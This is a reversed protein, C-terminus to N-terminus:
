VDGMLKWCAAYIGTTLDPTVHCGSGLIMTLEDADVNEAVAVVPIGKARAYGVEFVTGADLGDLLALVIGSSDLGALDKPAVEHPLGEGVDHIPSFVKFGMDKLTGRAENILWQQGTTFFPGALYVQTEPIPRQVGAGTRRLELKAQVRYDEVDEQSFQDLGQEVYAATMRSAFWAADTPSYGDEAWAYAFAASFVDGSGIKYVSKTPFPYVWTHETATAVIAGQPGCKVIAVVAGPQQLLKAAIQQPTSEATLAKGESYSVVIALEKATSGNASYSKAKAGDQPDYVVQQGHTVPRGELMGFVLLRNAQVPIQSTQSTIVPWSPPIIEPQALPYAYRFWIDSGSSWFSLAYGLKNAIDQFHETL